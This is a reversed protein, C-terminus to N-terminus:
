AQLQYSSQRFHSIPATFPMGTAQSIITTSFTKDNELVYDTVDRYEIVPVKGIALSLDVLKSVKHDFNGNLLQSVYGKSCGLHKALQSSNKHTREMFSVLERYLDIQIKAIWYGKSKLLEARKM